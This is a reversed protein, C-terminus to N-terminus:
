ISISFFVSRFSEEEQQPNQRRDPNPETYPNVRSIAEDDETAAFGTLKRRVEAAAKKAAMTQQASQTLGVMMQTSNTNSHIHM